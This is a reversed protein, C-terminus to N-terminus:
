SAFNLWDVMPICVAMPIGVISRSKIVVGVATVRRQDREQQANGRRDQLIFLPVLV